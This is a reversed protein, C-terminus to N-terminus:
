VTKRRPPTPPKISSLRKILLRILGQVEELQDLLDNSPVNPYLQGTVILLSELESAAELSRLCASQMGSRSGTKHGSAILTPISLAAQQLSTSLGPRETAPLSGTLHYIDVTLQMANQWARIDRFSSAAAM